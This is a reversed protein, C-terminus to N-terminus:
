LEDDVENVNIVRFDACPLSNFTTSTALTYAGMMRGVVVDGMELSPLEIDDAIVDISDCTPGALVSPQYDSSDSYISLPYRAHDFLQGSFAGYVGDNLYYWMVDGRKSIGNVSCVVTVAPASLYRGPEAFVQVSDPLASLAKRIPQCFTDITDEEPRIYNVPFGGGINLIHLQTKYERNMTQMFTDCFGIAEVHKDASHTQSGVHFSVGKVTIGLAQAELVIAQADDVNCGFKKSLDVSADASRFAIRLLLGVRHKYAIFKKLEYVNDIVFTTCGTRIAKTIERDSKIPHTHIVQKPYISHEKILSAEGSSAIDFGSGLDRLTRIMAAHPLSKIAYFLAVNPLAARM